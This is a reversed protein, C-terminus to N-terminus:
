HQYGPTPKPIIEWDLTGDNTDQGAERREMSQGSYKAPSPAWGRDVRDDLTKKSASSSQYEVADIITSIDIGDDWVTDVGSSIVIVDSTLSIMFDVTTTPDMNLLDPINPNDIDTASYQNYFEWDAGSLNVSTTVTSTHNVADQALVMFQGPQIPYNQGGPYGPFRFVYTVGEIDGDSGEDYGPGYRGEENNGSVRMVMMGDLYKISDSSNYIEIFQDYFFFFNNVPGVSYVENIALGSSSVPEAIVSDTYVMGSRIQINKQNYILQINKDDPYNMRVSISYVATPLGELYLRGNEDMQKVITGYESAFIVKANSMPVLESTSDGPVSHWYASLNVVTDGETTVPPNEECSYFVISSIALIIVLKKM